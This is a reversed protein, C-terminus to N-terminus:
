EGGLSFQMEVVVRCAVPGGATRAPEFTWQLMTLMAQADLRAEVGRALGVERVHGAEDILVDLWVKGEVRASMSEPPYEPKVSKKLRPAVIGPVSGGRPQPRVPITSIRTAFGPPLPAGLPIAIRKEGPGLSSSIRAIAAMLRQCGDSIGLPLKIDSVRGVANYTVVATLMGRTRRCGGWADLGQWVGEPLDRPLTSLTVGNFVPEPVVPDTWVVDLAAREDPRLLDDVARSLRALPSSRAIDNTGLQGLDTSPPDGASRAVIERAFRMAPSTAPVQGDFAAREKALAARADPSRLAQSLYDALAQEAVGGSASRMALGLLGLPLPRGVAAQVAGVFRWAEVTDRDIITRRTANGHVTERSVHSALVETAVADVGPVGLDLIAPLQVAMALPARRAMAHLVHAAVPQPMKRVVDMVLPAVDGTLEISAEALESAARADTERALAVAVDASLPVRGAARIARAAAARLTPDPQSLSARWHEDVLPSGASEVLLVEIAPTPPERLWRELRKSRDAVDDTAAAPTTLTVLAILATHAMSSRRTITM